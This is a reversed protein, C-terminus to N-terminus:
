FTLLTPWSLLNVSCFVDTVGGTWIGSRECELTGFLRLKTVCLTVLRSRVRMDLSHLYNFVADQTIKGNIL